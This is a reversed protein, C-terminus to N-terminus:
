SRLGLRKLPEETPDAVPQGRMVVDCSSLVLVNCM